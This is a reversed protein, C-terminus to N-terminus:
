KSGDSCVLWGCQPGTDNKITAVIARGVDAVTGGVVSDLEADSLEWAETKQMGSNMGIRRTQYPGSAVVADTEVPSSVM